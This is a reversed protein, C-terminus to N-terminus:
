CAFRRTSTAMKALSSYLFRNPPSQVFSGEVRDELRNGALNRSENAHTAEDGPRGM